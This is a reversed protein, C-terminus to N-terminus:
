SYSMAENGFYKRLIGLQGIHYAEHHAFFAFLDGVTDGMPCPMPAKQSMMEDSTNNLGEIVTESIAEFDALTTEVSPYTKTPDISSGHDFLDAHPQTVNLGLLAAMNYRASVAHGSIWAAHNTFENIREGNIEDLSVIANKFLRNQLEFQKAIFKVQNNM